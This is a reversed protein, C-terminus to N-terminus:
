LDTAVIGKISRQLLEIKSRNQTISQALSILQFKYLSCKRDDQKTNEILCILKEDRLKKMRVVLCLHFFVLYKSDRM